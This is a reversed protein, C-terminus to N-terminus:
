FILMSFGVGLSLGFLSHMMLALACAVKPNPTKSAMIGNGMAPMFFLWPVLVSVVGFVLGHTITPEFIGLQVLIFLVYAYAIGFVYHVTWGTPTEHKAEPQQSLQRAILQRNSMPHCLRAIPGSLCSLSDIVYGMVTPLFKASTM